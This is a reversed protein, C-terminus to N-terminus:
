FSNRQSVPVDCAYLVNSLEGTSFGATVVRVTQAKARKARRYPRLVTAEWYSGTRCDLVKSAQLAEDLTLTWCEEQIATNGPHSISYTAM